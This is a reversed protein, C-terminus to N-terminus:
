DAHVKGKDRYAESAASVGGKLVYSGLMAATSTVWEAGTIFGWILLCTGTTFGLLVLKYTTSDKGKYSLNSM